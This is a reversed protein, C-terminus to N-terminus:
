TSPVIRLPTRGQLEVAVRLHGAPDAVGSDAVCGELRYRAGPHLQAIGLEYRGAARGPYLVAELASGDSVARAPLVDPYALDAIVPGDLWQATPGKNVLDALGNTRGVRTKLMFAHSWTSCGPYSLVGGERNTRLEAMAALVAALADGDGLERAAMGLAGLAYATNFRYNGADLWPKLPILQLGYPGHRFLEDRAIEWARLALDPFLPHMWFAFIADEKSSSLGPITFGTRTSRLLVFHGDVDIFEEELRRRYLAELDAWHQTGHLRDCTRIGLAAQNNCLPYIWNPECPFLCFESNRVNEVLTRVLSPHDHVYREGSARQLTLAGPADYRRDGTALAYLGLQAAYWGSYMVNDRAIPDPEHRFNGWLSELAWYKWVVHQKKKEILNEQALKLYGRLAPLHVYNALSLVYGLNNIQYRIASPQFQDIFDFGAFGEVPQLARDLAYRLAALDDPSLEDVRPTIGDALVVTASPQWQGVIANRADRRARKRALMRRHIRWGGGVTGAALLAVLLPSGPLTQAHGMAGAALAGGLWVAIPAAQNGTGFWLILGVIFLLVTLLACGLHLLISWPGGAVFHLFGGGPFALGLGFAQWGPTSAALALTFGIICLAVYSFGTRRLRRATIPGISGHREPLRAPSLVASM